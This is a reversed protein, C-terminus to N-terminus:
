RQFNKRAIGPFVPFVEFYSGNPFELSTRSLCNRSGRTANEPQEAFELPSV